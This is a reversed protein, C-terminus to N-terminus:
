AGVSCQPLAAGPQYFKGCASLPEPSDLGLMVRAQPSVQAQIKRSLYYRQDCMRPLGAQTFFCALARRRRRPLRRRQEVLVEPQLKVDTTQQM